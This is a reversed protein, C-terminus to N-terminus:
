RIIVVRGTRAVTFTIDVVSTSTTKITAPWFMEDNSDYCMVMVDKTGLSHTVSVSSVSTFTTSYSSNSYTKMTSSNATPVNTFSVAQASSITVATTNNTALYMSNTGEAHLTLGGALNSYFYTGNARYQNSPTFGSGFLAIGGGNSSIDNGVQINSNSTSVVNRFTATSASGTVILSGTITQNGNFSNSGTTALTSYKTTTTVDIQSSGSVIGNFAAISGTIGTSTRLSGTVVTNANLSITTGDDNINSDALHEYGGGKLVRNKTLYIENGLNDYTEPGMLVQSSTVNTGNGKHVFIMEDDVADYLFSGSGGTSGSDIILLGAYRSSPSNTNLTVYAAGIVLNSSSINQISSSGQVVLDQTIYLSGSITQTGNFTNTSNTKAYSGTKSNIDAIHGNVSASTTELNTLRGNQTTNTTDNSGTYTNLSSLIGIVQSSGSVIGSGNFTLGTGDGYFKSASIDTNFKLQSNTSDWSMTVNAGAIRFGAGNALASTTSGSALTIFKDSINLTTSNATNTTGLVTLDGLVVVNSGTLQLATKLSSTYTNLSATSEQIRGVQAAMSATLASLTSNKTDQSSTYSNLSTNANSATFLNLSATNEELKGLRTLTSATFSNLQSVDTTQTINAVSASVIYYSQTFTNFSQTTAYITLSGTVFGLGAIQSSGSIVNNTAAIAGSFSTATSSGVLTFSGSIKVSGTFEHTDDSFDGFRNSGSSFIVSATENVTTLNTVTLNAITTGSLQASSSIIGRGKTEYSSTAANLSATVSNIQGISAANSATLTQLTSWKTDNSGTYTNISSLIDVVQSSGSVIGNPKSAINDWTTQTISGSIVYRSDFSSSLTTLLKDIKLVNITNGMNSHLTCYYYLLEPTNYNVELQIFNSGSTVGDVYQTPGNPSTSFKFPHQHTIDDTITTDFRYTLGPVVSMSPKSVGDIYYVGSSQSVIHTVKSETLANNISASFTSLNIGNINGTTILSGTVVLSGSITPNYHIM